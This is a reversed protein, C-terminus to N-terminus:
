HLKTPAMECHGGTNPLNVHQSPRYRLPVSLSYSICTACAADFELRANVSLTGTPHCVGQMISMSVRYNCTARLLARHDQTLYFTSPLAAPLRLPARLSELGPVEHWLRLLM